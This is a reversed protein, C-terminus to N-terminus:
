ILKPPSPLIRELCDLPSQYPWYCTVELLAFKMELNEGEVVGWDVSVASGFEAVRTVAWHGSARIM